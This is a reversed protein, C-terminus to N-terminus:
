ERLRSARPTPQADAGADFVVSAIEGGSFPFLYEYDRSVPDGTDSGISLGEGALAYHGSQTRFPAEAVVKGDVSLKMTGLAENKDGTKEKIFEVGIAHKGAAPVPISLRQEPPIGLFNYVFTLRRDKIFLSYGGFRAGQSVIM